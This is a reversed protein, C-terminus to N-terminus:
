LGRTANKYTRRTRINYALHYSVGFADAAERCTGPFQFLGQAQADTLKARYHSGGNNTTGHRAKDAANGVPTDYRLNELRNDKPDGNNHAVEYGSPCPGIFAEAVLRHTYTKLSRGRDKLQVMHYGAPLNYGNLIRPLQETPRQRCFKFSRVRGQDSVEYGDWGQIPRWKEM